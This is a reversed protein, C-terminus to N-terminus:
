KDRSGVFTAFQRAIRFIEESHEVGEFLDGSIGTARVVTGALQGTISAITDTDGGASIARALVASLPEEAIYQACHLALPVAAVVYGGAGFRSAVESPPLQLGILEEIRDRVASDPLSDVVVSLFSHQQSWTGALVSRISLVVALAGVYAEDNHHTIRCVDRIVTRDGTKSPDLLFALPAVRMAAGSGAAYEGRSGALAWHVGASLDRMAKLTSSGIGSIQGKVFWELLHTALNEPDISGHEIISECTALTLQTDDSVRSQPPIEFRPPATCGEFPGGWADGLAGGLLCGFVRDETKGLSQM